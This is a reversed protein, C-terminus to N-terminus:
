ALLIGIIGSVLSNLLVLKPKDLMLLLVGSPGFSANILQGFVFVQLPKAGILFEEGFLNLLFDAELYFFLFIFASLIYIWKTSFLYLDKIEQVRKQAFMRSAQASFIGAVMTLPILVVDGVRRVIAYVGTENAEMFHGVILIDVQQTSLNFVPILTLPLSYLIFQKLNFTNESSISPLEIKHFIKIFLITQMLLAFIQSVFTAYLLADLRTFFYVLVLLLLFRTVPILINLVAQVHQPKEIGTLLNNLIENLVIIPLLYIITQIAHNIETISPFLLSIQTNFGVKYIIIILISIITATGATIWVTTRMAKLDNKGRYYSIYRLAGKDLGLTSFVKFVGLISLSVAITGLVSAGVIRTILITVVFTIIIGVFNIVGVASATKSLTNIEQQSM